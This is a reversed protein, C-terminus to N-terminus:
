NFRGTWDEPLHHVNAVVDVDAGAQVDVMVYNAREIYPFRAMSHTSRGPVAQLTGLECVMSPKQATVLNVFVEALNEERYTEHEQTTQALQKPKFGLFRRATMFM